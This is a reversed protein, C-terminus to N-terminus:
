EDRQALLVALATYYEVCMREALECADRATNDDDVFIPESAHM